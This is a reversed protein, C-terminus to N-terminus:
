TGVPVGARQLAQASMRAYDTDGGPFRERYRQVTLNPELRLMESALRSATEHEGKLEHAVVLTRYTPTHIRNAKLSVASWEIAQDLNGATLAAFGAHSYYHDRLPDLPSLSLARETAHMAAAGHDRWAELTGRYLWALSESPNAEIAADLSRQAAAHDRQMFGQVHGRTALALSNEPSLDLAREVHGLARAGEQSADESWGQVARMVHWKALWAHPQAVRSHRDALHDLLTRAREFEHATARHMLAIAALLLSHGQLTQLPQTSARELERAIIAQGVRAVAIPVADDVGELLAQVSATLSDAWVVSCSDTDCLELSMRMRDGLIHFSGTLAFVAGLKARLTEPEDAVHCVRSTSLRSVVRLEGARSLAAILEDAIVEGLIDAETGPQRPRLPIVAVSSRFDTSSLAPLRRAPAQGTPSVRFARIPQQIHKVYRLGLDEVDVDLGDTLGDRAEPSVVVEGPGALTALRAALNVGSGYIDLHDVVVEAVHAGVRLCMWQTAAYGQNFAQISQQMALACRTAPLVSEFELMLGDGLSKVLRGGSQPLLRTVVEGVFAQWRRITDDEDQEMLRVSEVVDVVVVTRSARRLAPWPAESQNVTM